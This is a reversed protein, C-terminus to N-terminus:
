NRASSGRRGRRGATTTTTRTRRPSTRFNVTILVTIIIIIILYYFFTPKYSNINLGEVTTSESKDEIVVSASPELEEPKPTIDVVSSTLADFGESAWRDGRLLMVAPKPEDKIVLEATHKEDRKRRYQALEKNALDTSNMKALVDAPLEKTLISKRLETNKPDKFNFLLTRIKAKYTNLDFLKYLEREIDAAIESIVKQDFDKEQSLPEFILKRIQLRKPDNDSSM